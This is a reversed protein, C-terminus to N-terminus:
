PQLWKPLLSNMVESALLLVLYIRNHIVRAEVITIHIQVVKGGRKTLPSCQAM